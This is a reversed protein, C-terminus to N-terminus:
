LQLVQLWTQLLLRADNKGAAAEFLRRAVPEHALKESELIQTELWDVVMTSFTFPEIFSSTGGPESRAVQLWYLKGREDFFVELRTWNRTDFVSSKWRYTYTLAFHGEQTVGQEVVNSTAEYQLSLLEASPHAVTLITASQAEILAWAKRVEPRSEKRPALLEATIDFELRENGASLRTVWVRDTEFPTTGAATVLRYRLSAARIQIGDHQLWWREGPAFSYTGSATVSENQADTWGVLSLQVFQDTRNHVVVEGTPVDAASAPGCLTLLAVVVSTWFGNSM